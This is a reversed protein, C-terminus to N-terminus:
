AAKRRAKRWKALAEHVRNRYGRSVADCDARAEGYLDILERLMGTQILTSQDRLFMLAVAM